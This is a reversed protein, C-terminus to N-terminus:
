TNMNIHPKKVNKERRKKHITLMQRGAGLVATHWDSALIAAGCQVDLNCCQCSCHGPQVSKTVAVSDPEWCAGVYLDRTNRQRFELKGSSFSLIKTRIGHIINNM